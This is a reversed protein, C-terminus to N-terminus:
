KANERELVRRLGRNENSIKKIEGKLYEVERVKKHRFRLDIALADLIKSLKSTSISQQNKLANELLDKAEKSDM